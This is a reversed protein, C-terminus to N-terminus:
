GRRRYSWVHLIRVIRQQRDVEFRVGLPFVFWIRQSGGRSEGTTEPTRQLDHDVQNTVATIAQRFATDGQTWLAALENTASRKWRVTFM